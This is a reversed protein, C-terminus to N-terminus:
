SVRDKEPAFRAGEEDQIWSRWAADRRKFEGNNLEDLATRGSSASAFARTASFSVGHRPAYSAVMGNSFLVVSTILKPFRMTYQEALPINHMYM